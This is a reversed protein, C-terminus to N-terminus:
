QRYARPMALGIRREFADLQADTAPPNFMYRDPPLHAAFWADLRALVPAIDEELLPKPSGPPRVPPRNATVPSQTGIRLMACATPLLSGLVAAVAAGGILLNRRSPDM